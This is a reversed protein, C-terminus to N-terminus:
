QSVVKVTQQVKKALKRAEELTDATITVHGMKRFPKTEAKGYIHVNVGPWSMIEEIGQYKVPGKHNPDGLLNYMVAPRVISTDGLPLGLISRLHQMYQSTANAEITHHGSNHPRPAVENVLVDGTKTVFMEVALIGVYDFADVVQKALDFAKREVSDSVDAPSFLFEVLNAEPNFDLEVLPFTRTEGKANRSVIVSIEKEFDVFDELLSPEDFGKELDAESRLVQVGRGDYGGTRLKQVVPYESIKSAADSRNEALRFDSTSIGNEAYFQKQKGKDKITSLIKPDPFVQVGEAKLRELGEVSVNEIEITVVDMEKGFEFVTNADNFDGVTFSNALENCPANESPDVIHTKVDLNNTERLLMRGLQGGGLIGLKFSKDYFSKM